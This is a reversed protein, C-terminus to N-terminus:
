SIIDEIFHNNYSNWYINFKRNDNSDLNLIYLRFTVFVNKPEWLIRYSYLYKMGISKMVNGSRYNKVDHTATIYKVGDEKLKNLLASLSERMLGNHRFESRLGYGLEHTKDGNVKIYGIPINDNKLCIAYYYGKTKYKKIIKDNYFAIADDFKTAIPWPLFENTKEDSLISFLSNFDKPTFKRLILRDTLIEDNKMM